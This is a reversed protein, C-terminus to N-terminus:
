PDERVGKFFEVLTGVVTEVSEDLWAYDPNGAISRFDM